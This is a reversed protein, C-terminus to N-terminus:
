YHCVAGIHAHTRDVFSDGCAFEGRALNGLRRELVDRFGIGVDMGIEFQGFVGREGRGVLDVGGNRVARELLHAREGAHGHCEFVVHVHLARM